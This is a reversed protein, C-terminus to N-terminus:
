QTPCQKSWSLFPLRRLASAVGGGNLRGCLTKSALPRAHIAGSMAHVWLLTIESSARCGHYPRTRCFPIPPHPLAAGAWAARLTDQTWMARCSMRDGHREEGRVQGAQLRSPAIDFQIIDGIALTQLGDPLARVHVFCDGQGDERRIFGYGKDGHWSKVEGRM